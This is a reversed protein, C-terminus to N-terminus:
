EEAGTWIASSTIPRYDIDVLGHRRLLELVEEVGEISIDEWVVDGVDPDERVFDDVGKLVEYLARPSRPYSSSSGLIFFVRRAFFHEKRALYLACEIDWSKSVGWPNRSLLDIVWMRYFEFKLYVRDRLLTPKSLPEYSSM